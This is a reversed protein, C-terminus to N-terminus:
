CLSMGLPCEPLDTFGMRTVDATRYAIPQVMYHKKIGEKEVAEKMLKVAEICKEPEFRCNIGIIDAGQFTNGFFTSKNSFLVM